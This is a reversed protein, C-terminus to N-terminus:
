GFQWTWVVSTNVERQPFSWNRAKQSLCQFVVESGNFGSLERLRGTSGSALVEFELRIEGGRLQPTIKKAEEYCEHFDGAQASMVKEIEEQKLAREAGSARKRSFEFHLDVPGRSYPPAARWGQVVSSLCLVLPGSGPFSEVTRINSFEGNPLYDARLMLHGQDGNPFRREFEEYCQSFRTESEFMLAEVAAQDTETAQRSACGSFILLASGLAIQKFCFLNM